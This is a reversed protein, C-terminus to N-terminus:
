NLYMMMKVLYNVKPVLQVLKAQPIAHNLLEVVKAYPSFYLLSFHCYLCNLPALFYYSITVMGIDIAGELPLNFTRQFQKLDNPSWNEDNTQFVSQNLLASGQNSAIKYFQNLYAPTVTQTADLTKLDSLKEKEQLHENFLAYNILHPFTSTILHLICSSCTIYYCLIFIYLWLHM